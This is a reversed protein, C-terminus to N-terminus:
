KKRLQRATKEYDAHFRFPSEKMEIDSPQVKEHCMICCKEFWISDVINLTSAEMCVTSWTICLMVTFVFMNSTRQCSTLSM